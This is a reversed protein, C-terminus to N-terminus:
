KLIKNFKATGANIIPEMVGGCGGGSLITPYGAGSKIEIPKGFTKNLPIGAIGSNAMAICGAADGDAAVTPNGL